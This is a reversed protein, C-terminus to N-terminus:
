LPLLQWGSMLSLKLLYPLTSEATLCTHFVQLVQWLWWAFIRVALAVIALGPFYLLVLLM